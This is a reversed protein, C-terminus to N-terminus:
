ILSVQLSVYCSSNTQGTCMHKKRNKRCDVLVRAFRALSLSLVLAFCLFSSSLRFDIKEKGKGLGETLANRHRIRSSRSARVVHGSVCRGRAIVVHGSVCRGGWGRANATLLDWATKRNIRAKSSRQLSFIPDTFLNSNTQEWPIKTGHYSGIYFFISFDLSVLNM